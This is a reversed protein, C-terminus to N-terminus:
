EDNEEKNTKLINTEPNFERNPYVLCVNQNSPNHIQIFLGNQRLAYNEKVTRHGALYVYDSVNASPNLSKIIKKVSGKEAEGNATWTFDAVIQGDSRANIIQEKTYAIRPEAHSIVCNKSVFVLPMANEVCHLLYLIDDGYFECIFERTMYGEDAYKRFSFDGNKTQNMINEHNGKLFHFNEPFLEKLKMLACITNMGLLMEKSMSPGTFIGFRFEEFANQWREKSFRETHLADGVCVLRILKKSLADFITYKKQNEYNVFDLPLSCELINKIFFPRAHIDPVVVLPLEDNLFDLLSGREGNKNLPRYKTSENELIECVKSTLDFVYDHHPLESNRLINEIEELKKKM